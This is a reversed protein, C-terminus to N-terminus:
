KDGMYLIRISNLIALLAVGTDAFVAIWMSAMGLAGLILVLFKFGLAFVINQRVIGMTKKSIDRLKSLKSIDDEMIVIDAAEIAADSGIRGMAIGVDAIRIVPADNIGDGVFALGSSAGGMHSEVVEVKDQPLLSARYSDLGLVQAVEGAVAENDGTLMLTKLGRAKLDRITEKAGVKVQDKILIYGYYTGDIAVHVLTGTEDAEQYGIRYKDMLKHNGVYITNLGLKAILGHGAIDEISDPHIPDAGYKDLISRAIPHNSGSEAIAAAELVEAEHIGESPSVRDVVFEGRTLTGTKDFAITDLKAVDELHNAGKAIIGEKSLRGIGAFFGLPISVVLACPCSAVLFVLARYTWKALAEGSILPPILALALASFVVFPTYYGAFRSIFKETPAKKAGSEEVLELIKAVASDKFPKTVQVKILSSLNITGSLVEDGQGLDLPLSEGTLASADVSTTGSIIEGDVPFREGAKVIITDGVQLDAPDVEVLKKGQVLTARDVRIGMLDAISKRSRNVAKDQFYEGVSYFIMVAVGESFEGISIAGISALAMLFNEDFVKGKSINKLAAMVIDGGSLVYALVLIGNKIDPDHVLFSIFFLGLPLILKILNFSEDGEDLSVERGLGQGMDYVLSAGEETTRIILDIRKVLDEDMPSKTRIHVKSGAFDVSAGEVRDLAKIQEEIKAACSACSLNKIEYIYKM